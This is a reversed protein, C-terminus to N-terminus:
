PDYVATHMGAHRAEEQLEALTRKQADLQIQIEAVRQMQKARDRSPPGEFQASGAPHIAANLQEIQAQLTAIKGKEALIRRKWEAAARENVPQEASVRHLTQPHAKSGPRASPSNAAPATGAPNELDDTTVVIPQTASTGTQNQKERNARAIDGLSQGHAALGSLVIVPLAILFKRQM